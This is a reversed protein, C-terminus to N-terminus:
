YKEFNASAYGDKHECDPCLCAEEGYECSSFIYPANCWKCALVEEKHGCMLCKEEDVDFTENHCSTCEITFIEEREIRELAKHSLDDYLETYQRLVWWNKSKLHGRKWNLGLHEETFRFIFTVVQGVLIKAEQASLEFEYHEIKNRKERASKIASLDEPSFPIGGIKQLRELATKASVTYADPSPYKDVNEYVFAPNIRRLKEKFLLEIVHSCDVIVRKWDGVENERVPGMHELAHALSDNANEILNFKHMHLGYSYISVGFYIDIVGDPFRGTM